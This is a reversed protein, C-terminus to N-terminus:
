LPGQHAVSLLDSLKKVPAFTDTPVEVFSTNWESMSGNWLGPMEQVLISRGQYSKETIFGSEKDCFKRLDFRQHDENDLVCVIDVPNVYVAEAFLAAQQSNTKDIQPPEVIQPSLSGDSSRCLFPAGGTGTRSRVLGCVRLPRNLKSLLYARQSTPSAGQGVPHERILFAEELFSYSESLSTPNNTRVASQLQRLRTLLQLARGGIIKKYYTNRLHYCDKQINDVNKIFVLGEEVQQLNKLLAGHGSPRWLYEGEPTRVSDRSDAYVALSHTQPDQYSYTFSFQLRKEQGLKSLGQKVEDLCLTSRSSPLTAHLRVTSVEDIAYHSAEEAHELWCPRVEEEYTHFPLAWKPAESYNLGKKTLLYYAIKKYDQAQLCSKLSEGNAQMCNELLTYFPLREIGLFCDTAEQTKANDTSLINHLAKFMRSAMGSAPIFVTPRRYPAEKEYLKLLNAEEKASLSPVHSGPQIQGVLETHSFGVEFRAIQKEIETRSRM